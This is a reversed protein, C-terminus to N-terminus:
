TDTGLEMEVVELVHKVKIIRGGLINPNSVIGIGTLTAPYVLMSLISLFEAPVM